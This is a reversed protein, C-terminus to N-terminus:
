TRRTQPGGLRAAVAEYAARSKGTSSGGRVVVLRSAPVAPDLVARLLEDHPRSVYRPMAGGGIVRHVGLEVPDWRGALRGSAPKKAAGPGPPNIVGPVALWALYLAPVTGLIAVLVPPWALHSLVALLVALAATVILVALAIVGARRAGVRMAVKRLRWRRLCGMMAPICWATRRSCEAGPFGPAVAMNGRDAAQFARHDSHAPFLSTQTRALPQCVSGCCEQM